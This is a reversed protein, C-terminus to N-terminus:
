DIEPSVDKEIGESFMLFGNFFLFLSVNVQFPKVTSKVRMNLVCTETNLQYKQDKIDNRKTKLWNVALKLTNANRNLFMKLMPMILIVFENM